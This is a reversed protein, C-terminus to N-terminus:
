GGVRVRHDTWMYLLDAVLSGIVVMTSTIIVIATLLQYDRTAIANVTLTGIGPWSFVSEVFVSGGLLAPLSLGFLTVVPLLSNRLVHRWMVSRESLGKARATRVFDQRSVDLLAARQFRAVAATALLALTGAPLVLHWLRDVARAWPGMYSYMIPDFMGTAPFLGLWYAFVLLMMLALWFDPMSYFFLSGMGLGWDLPTGQHRAQVIGMGIGGVFALVIAVGMLLLTNPLADALVASVPRHHPFSFGFGGHAVSLIYHWYQLHVPLDLGLRHVWYERVAPATIPDTLTARVPDGPAAHLMIFTLTAVLWVIVIGQAIRRLVLAVV